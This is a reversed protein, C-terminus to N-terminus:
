KQDEVLYRELADIKAKLDESFIKPDNIADRRMGAHNLDNRKIGLGSILGTLEQNKALYDVLQGALDPNQGAAGKWESQPTNKEVFSVASTVICRIKKDVPDQGFMRLLHSILTEQLITYGQQVMNHEHCWRAARVGNLADDDSFRDTLERLKDVLPSFPRVLDTDTITNLASQLAEISPTIQLGRCTSMVKTFRDLREALKKLSLATNQHAGKEKIVPVLSEEALAKIKRADGGKIFRDVGVSWELLTDFASLEFIPVLREELDMQRVEHISGLSEMAGYCIRKLKANKLVKAYNLVVIALMPISRFAHTIDFVVQDAPRIAEFVINFIEWIEDESKGDPVSINNVSATPNMTKLRSRLGERKLKEGTKYNTHGDDLWNKREAETTTFILIRDTETWDSCNIRITAEQVFRVDKVTLSQGDSAPNHEDYYTCLEYDNTGLFSIYVNAM